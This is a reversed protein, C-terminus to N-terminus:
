WREDGRKGLWDTGTTWVGSADQLARGNRGKGGLFKWSQDFRYVEGTGLTLVYRAPAQVMRGTTLLNKVPAPMDPKFVTAPPLFITKQDPSWLLKEPDGEADGLVIAASTAALLSAFFGRRNMDTM